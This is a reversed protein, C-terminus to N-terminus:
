PMTSKIPDFEPQRAHLIASHSRSPFLSQYCLTAAPIIVPYSLQSIRSKTNHPDQKSRRKKKKIQKSMWDKRKTKHRREKELERPHMDGM